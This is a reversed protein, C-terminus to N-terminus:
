ARNTGEEADVTTWRAFTGGPLRVSASGDPLLDDLFALEEGRKLATGSALRLRCAALTAEWGHMQYRLVEETLSKQIARTIEAVVSLHGTTMRLSVPAPFYSEANEFTEQNINVGIGVIAAWHTPSSGVTEVLLGAIKCNNVLVDNPWKLQPNIGEGTLAGCVALGAIFALRWADMRPMDPRLVVSMLVSEGSVANWERGRRGRGSTQFDATVVAGNPAPHTADLAWDRALDSTSACESYHRHPKSTM